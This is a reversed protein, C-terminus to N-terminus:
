STWGMMEYYARNNQREEAPFWGLMHDCVEIGDDTLTLRPTLLGGAILRALPSSWGPRVTSVRGFERAEQLIRNSKWGIVVTM